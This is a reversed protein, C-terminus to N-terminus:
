PKALYIDVYGPHLQYHLPRGYRARVGAVIAPNAQFMRGIIVAAPHAPRHAEVQSAAPGRQRDAWDVHRDATRADASPRSVARRASGLRRATRAAHPYPAPRGGLRDRAAQGDVSDIIEHRQEYLGAAVFSAVALAVAAAPRHPLGATFLGLGVGAPLALAVALFVFHHDSLPHMALIFGYEGLAWLWLAALLQRSRGQAAVVASAAAGAIVLCGFPTRPDVFTLARHANSQSPRYGPHTHARRRGRALDAAARQSVLRHARRM